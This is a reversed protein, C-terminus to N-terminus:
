TLDVKSQTLTVRMKSFDNQRIDKIPNMGFFHWRFDDVLNVPYGVTICFFIRATSSLLTPGSEINSSAALVITAFLILTLGPSIGELRSLKILLPKLHM